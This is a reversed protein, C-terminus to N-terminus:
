AAVRKDGAQEPILRERWGWDDILGLATLYAPWPFDPVWRVAPQPLRVDFPFRRSWDSEYQAFRGALYLPTNTGIVLQPDASRMFRVVADLALEIQNLQGNEDAPDLGFTRFFRPRGDVMLAVTAEGTTWECLLGDAAGIGRALAPMKLDLRDMEFGASSVASVLGDVLERRAAVLYVAYSREVLRAHWSYYVTQPDIPILRKGEFLVAAPLEEAPLPPLRFDRVAIGAEGIAMRLSRSTIRAAELAQRLFPGFAPSPMGEQFLGAPLIVETHRVLRGGEAQVARLEVVGLEVIALSRV